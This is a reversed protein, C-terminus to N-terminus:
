EFSPYKVQFIYLEHQNYMPIRTAKQLDRLRKLKQISTLTEAAKRYLVFQFQIVSALFNTFSFTHANFLANHKNVHMLCHKNNVFTRFRAANVEPCSYASFSKAPTM